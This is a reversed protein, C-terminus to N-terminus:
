QKVQKEETTTEPPECSKPDPHILGVNEEDTETSTDTKAASRENKSTEKVENEQTKATAGSQDDARLHRGQIAPTKGATETATSATKTTQENINKPHEKPFNLFAFLILFLLGLLTSYLSIGNAIKVKDAHPNSSSDISQLEENTPDLEKTIETDLNEIKKQIANQSQFIAVLSSMVGVALLIWGPLIVWRTYPIPAPAIKEIFTLSIVLAGGAVLSLLKEYRAGIELAFRDAENRQVVYAEHLTKHYQYEEEEM